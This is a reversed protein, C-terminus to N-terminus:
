PGNADTVFNVTWALLRSSPNPDLNCSSVCNGFPKTTGNPFRISISINGVFGYGTPLDGAGFFVEQGLNVKGGLDPYILTVTRNPHQLSGQINSISAGFVGIVTTLYTLLALAHM